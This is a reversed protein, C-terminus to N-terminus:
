QAHRNGAVAPQQRVAPIHQMQCGTDQHGPVSAYVLLIQGGGENLEPQLKMWM